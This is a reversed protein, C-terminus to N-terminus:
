SRSRSGAVVLLAASHAAEAKADELRSTLPPVPLFLGAILSGYIVAFSVGIFTELLWVSCHLEYYMYGQVLRTLAFLAFGVFFLRSRPHVARIADVGMLVLLVILAGSHLRLLNPFYRTYQPLPMLLLAALSVLLDIGIWLVAAYLRAFNGTMVILALLTSAVFFMAAHLIILSIPMANPPPARPFKGLM